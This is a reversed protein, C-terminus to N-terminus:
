MGRGVREGRGGLQGVAPVMNWRGGTNQKVEEELLRVEGEFERVEGDMSTVSGETSSLGLGRTDRFGDEAPGVWGQM